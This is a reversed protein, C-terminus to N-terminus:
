PFRRSTPRATRMSPEPTFTRWGCGVACTGLLRTGAGAGGIESHLTLVELGRDSEHVTLLAAPKGDLEAVIGEQETPDLLEGLRAVRHDGGQHQGILHRAWEHDAPEFDRVDLSV